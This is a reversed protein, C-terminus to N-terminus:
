NKQPYTVYWSPPSSNTWKPPRRDTQWKENLYQRYATVCPTSKYPTCNAFPTCAAVPLAAAIKYGRNIVDWSKHQKNFRRTYEAALSAGHELLWIFNSDTDGAWKTCPHNAHTLKYWEGSVSYRHAVASIIQATELTMKIVRKDDLNEGAIAPDTDSVFINM